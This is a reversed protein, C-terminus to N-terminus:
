DTYTFARDGVRIRRGPVIPEILKASCMDKTVSAVQVAGVFDRGRYVLFRYGRQVTSEGESGVNLVVTRGSGDVAKVTARIEPVDIGGGGGEGARRRSLALAEPETKELVDEVKRHYTLQSTAVDLQHLVVKHKLELGRLQARTGFLTTTRKNLTASTEALRNKTKDYETQLLKLGSAQSKVSETLRTARANADDRESTVAAIQAVQRRIKEERNNLEVERTNALDRFANRDTELGKANETLTKEKDAADRKHDNFEKSLAAHEERWHKKQSLVTASVTVFAISFVLNLIIFTKTLTSM